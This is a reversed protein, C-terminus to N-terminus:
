GHIAPFTLLSIMGIFLGSTATAVYPRILAALKRALTAVTAADSDREVRAVAAADTASLTEPSQVLLWALQRAAPLPM